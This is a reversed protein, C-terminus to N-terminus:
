IVIRVFVQDFCIGWLHASMCSLSLSLYLQLYLYLYLYLSVSVSVLETLLPESPNALTHYYTLLINQLEDVRVLLAATCRCRRRRRHHRHRHRRFFILTEVILDFPVVCSVRTPMLSAAASRHMQLRPAAKTVNVSKEPMFSKLPNGARVFSGRWVVLLARLARLAASWTCSQPCSWIKNHSRVCCMHLGFSCSIKACDDIRRERERDRQDNTMHYQLFAAARERARKSESERVRGSARM